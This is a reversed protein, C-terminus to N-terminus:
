ATRNTSFEATGDTILFATLYPPDIAAGVASQQTSYYAAVNPQM